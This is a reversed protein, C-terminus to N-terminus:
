NLIFHIYVFSTYNQKYNHPLPSIASANSEPELPLCLIGHPNSEWRGCWSFFSRKQKPNANQLDSLPPAQKKELERWVYISTESRM